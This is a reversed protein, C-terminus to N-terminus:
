YRFVRDSILLDCFLRHQTSTPVYVYVNESTGARIISFGHRIERGFAGASNQAKVAPSSFAEVGDAHELANFSHETTPQMLSEVQNESCASSRDDGGKDAETM